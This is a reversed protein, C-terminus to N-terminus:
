AVTRPAHALPKREGRRPRSCTASRRVTSRSKRPSSSCSPSASPSSNTSTGSGKSSVILAFGGVYLIGVAILAFIGAWRRVVYGRGRCDAFCAEVFQEWWQEAELEVGLTLSEAPVVGGVARGRLLAFVRSEWPRLGGDVSHGNHFRCLQQGPAIQELSDHGPAALDLVTAPLM